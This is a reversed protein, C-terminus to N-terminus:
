PQSSIATHFDYAEEFPEIQIPPIPDTLAEARGMAALASKGQNQKRLLSAISCNSGYVYKNMIGNPPM